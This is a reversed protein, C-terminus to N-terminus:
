CFKLSPVEVELDVSGDGSSELRWVCIVPKKLSSAIVSFVDPTLWHVKWWEGALGEDALCEFM